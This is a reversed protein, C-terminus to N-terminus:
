SRHKPRKKAPASGRRPAIVSGRCGQGRRPAIVTGSKLFTPGFMNAFTTKRLEFELVAASNKHRLNDNAVPNLNPNSPAIIAATFGETLRQLKIDLASLIVASLEGLSPLWSVRVATVPSDPVV